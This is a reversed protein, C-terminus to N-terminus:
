GNARDQMIHSVGQQTLRWAHLAALGEPADAPEMLGHDCFEGWLIDNQSGPATLLVGGRCAALVLLEAQERTVMWREDM